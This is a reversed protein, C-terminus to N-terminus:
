RNQFLCPHIQYQTSVTMHVFTRMQHSTVIALGIRQLWIHHLRWSTLLFAREVGLGGGSPYPVMDLVYKKPRAEDDQARFAGEAEWRDVWALQNDKIRRDSEPADRDIHGKMLMDVTSSAPVWLTQRTGVLDPRSAVLERLRYAAGVSVIRYLERRAQRDTVDPFCAQLARRVVADYDAYALDTEGEPWLVGEALDVDIQMFTQQFASAGAALLTLFFFALFLLGTATAAVGFLRFAVDKRRRRALGSRIKKRSDSPM